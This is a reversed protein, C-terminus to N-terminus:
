GKNYVSMMAEIASQDDIPGSNANRMTMQINSHGLCNAAVVSPDGNM